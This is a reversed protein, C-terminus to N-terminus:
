RYIFIIVFFKPLFFFGYVYLLLNRHYFFLSIYLLICSWECLLIELDIKEKGDLFIKVFNQVSMFHHILLKIRVTSTRFSYVELWLHGYVIRPQSDRNFCSNRKSLWYRAGQTDLQTRLEKIEGLGMGGGGGRGWPPPNGGCITVGETDGGDYRLKPLTCLCCSGWISM